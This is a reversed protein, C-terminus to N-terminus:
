SKITFWEDHIPIIVHSRPFCIRESCVRRKSERVRTQHVIDKISKTENLHAILLEGGTDRLTSYIDEVLTRNAGDGEYTEVIRDKKRLGAGPLFEIGAAEFIGQM